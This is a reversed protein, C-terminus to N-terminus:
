EGANFLQDRVAKRYESATTKVEKIREADSMAKWEPTKMTAALAQRTYMGALKSYHSYSEASLPYTQGQIQISRKPAGLVSKTTTDSLRAIENAVPDKNLAQEEVHSGMYPGTMEKTQQVGLTDNRQPLQTSNFNPSLNAPLGAQIGSKIQGTLTNNGATDRKVHDQEQAYGRLISPVVMSSATGSVIKLFAQAQKSPDTTLMDGVSTFQKTYANDKLSNLVSFVLKAASKTYDKDSIDGAKYQEVLSSVLTVNTSLPEIGQISRYKGNVLISNSQHTLEWDKRKQANLPGSGTTTGAMAYAAIMATAYGAMTMRAIVQDRSSGGAKWGEINERELMGLPGRRITTRILADPTTTFPFLLKSLFRASSVPLSDGIKDNQFHQVASAIKSPKDLFQIVKTYHNTADVMEKTPNALLNAVENKFETGKLGKNGANRIALGYMNSTQLVNRWWEDAASLARSPSELVMSGANMLPNDGSYVHGTGAKDGGGNGTVGSKYSGYTNKYTEAATLGKMTGWMRYGVERLRIRDQNSNLSLSGDTNHFRKYQGIASAGTHELIDTLFNAGTSVLNSVHTAPGSLLMNYWVKFIFDKANPKHIDAMRRIAGNLNGAQFDETIQKMFKMFEKPDALVHEPVAELASAFKRSASVKTLINLARGVEGNDGNVRGHVAKMMAMERLAQMQAKESFGDKAIKNAIGLVKEAQNAFVLNAAHIYSTLEGPEGLGKRSAIRSPTLGRALANAETEEHSVTRSPNAAALETLMSDIDHTTQIKNPNMSGINPSRSDEEDGGMSKKKMYKNIIKPVKDDFIVYNHEGSGKARDLGTLYENGHIGNENLFHSAARDSGLHDSLHSYVEKGTSDDSLSNKLQHKLDDAADELPEKETRFQKHRSDMEEVSATEGHKDHWEQYGDSLKDMRDHLAMFKSEIADYKDKPLTDIGHKDLVDQIHSQESLKKDLNLYKADDPLDVEYVKGKNQVKFKSNVYDVVNQHDEFDLGAHEGYESNKHDFYQNLKETTPKYDKTAQMYEIMNHGVAYANEDHSFKQGISHEMNNRVQYWPGKVGSWSVDEGGLKKAYNEGIHRSDTLYTGHGYAQAGEGSGMHEHSFEDFDHPSGHYVKKYKYSPDTMVQTISPKDQIPLHSGNPGRHDMTDLVNRDKDVLLNVRSGDSMTHRVFSHEDNIPDLTSARQYRFGNTIVGGPDGKMTADHAMALITRIEPNSFKSDIGVKRGFDQITSTLRDLISAKMPGNESDEALVEEVSLAKRNPTGEPYYDPHDQDFKDVKAKFADNGNDYLDQMKSSLETGFETALGHHGLAEHYLAATLTAPSDVNRMNILVRGDETQVGIADKDIGPIHDLNSHIEVDPANTWDKTLHNVHDVAAQNRLSEDGPSVGPKPEEFTFSDQAPKAGGKTAVPPEYAGHDRRYDLVAEIENKPGINTNAYDRIQQDTFPSGDLNTHPKGEADRGSVMNTVEHAADIRRQYDLQPDIVGPGDGNGPGDPNTDRGRENFLGKVFDSTQALGEHLGVLGAGLIASVGVRHVDFNDQADNRMANGQYAADAGAGVAAGAGIRSAIAGVGKGGIGLPILMSPDSLGGVLGGALEPTWDYPHSAWEGWTRQHPTHTLAEEPTQAYQTGPVAKDEISKHYDKQTQGLLATQKQDLEEPTADPFQKKLQDMGYGSAKMLSNSFGGIFSAPDSISSQVGQAYKYLLPSNVHYGTGLVNVDALNGQADPAASPNPNDAYHTEGNEDTYVARNPNGPVLQWGGTDTGNAM